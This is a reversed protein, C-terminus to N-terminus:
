IFIHIETINLGLTYLTGNSLAWPDVQTVIRWLYQCADSVNDARFFIWAVDVLLFTCLMQGFKYSVSETKVHFYRELRRKLLETEGGIIQYFGHIGGWVIYTWNAGHWLGSVLFTCMLNFYKRLKGCRNGGMPIYLYDRFWTSLSIHWRRWFEKISRSFYPTNFNEMLHFGLVKAAGIAITSYSSFDCYIQIGFAVAATALAFSQYLYYKEFVTNVLVAIRDAIVMKLFLGYLMMELGQAIRKGDFRVQNPVANVQKMLNTSREIPGAVLQPFFSVFLAYRFINHEIEVDGRYADITYGLAQFTYFSIGVPLIIDFSRDIVEMGTMTLIRNVNELIFNSYKFIVLISINSFFSIAVILKKYIERHELQDKKNIADIGIGSLFTIATSLAMLLAYYPNWSMYFYYSAILLWIWRIKRPIFYYVICVLPFFLLFDFSNFLM